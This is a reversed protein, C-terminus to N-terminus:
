ADTDVPPAPPTPPKTAVAKRPVAGTPAKRPAVVGPEPISEAVAEVAEDPTPESEAAAVELKPLATPDANLARLRAAEAARADAAARLANDEAEADDSTVERITRRVEDDVRTMAGRVQRMGEGLKRAVKPLQDPGIFILAVVLILLVEWTGLGFM